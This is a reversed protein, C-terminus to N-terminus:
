VWSVGGIMPAPTTPATEPELEFGRRDDDGVLREVLDQVPASTPASVIRDTM